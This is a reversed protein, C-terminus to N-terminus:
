IEDNIISVPSVVTIGEYRKFDATNFTLVHTLDHVKMAAVLRADHVQVGCVGYERVLHRWVSYIEPRDPYLHYVQEVQALRQEAIAINLGLGNRSVPRTCVNWFEAAIQAVIGLMKGQRVLMM